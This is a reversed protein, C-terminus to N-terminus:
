SHNSPSINKRSVLYHVSYGHIYLFSLAMFPILHGVHMSPATPDIGAYVGIRRMTLLTELDDRASSIIEAQSCLIRCLFSFAGLSKISTGGRKWAALCPRPRAPTSSDHERAGNM